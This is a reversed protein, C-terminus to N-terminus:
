WVMKKLRFLEEWDKDYEKVTKNDEERIKNLYPENSNDDIRKDPFYTLQKVRNVEGTPKFNEDLEYIDGNLRDWYDETNDFVETFQTEDDTVSHGGGILSGYKWKKGLEFKPLEKELWHKSTIFTNYWEHVNISERATHENYYGVSLNVGCIDRCLTVIDTFSYNDAKRFGKLNDELYGIFDPTGVDYVKFDNANRRDFQVMFQHENIINALEEENNMIYTSGLMGSEEGNTVLLSHGSDKLLWLIAIGARDDAGIGQNAYSGSGHSGRWGDTDWVTDAHAVLVVRDKRNGPVYVARCAGIGVDVANPLKAFRDLIDYGTNLPYRLFEELTRIANKKFKKM